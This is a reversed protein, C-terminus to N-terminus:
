SSTRSRIEISFIADPLSWPTIPSPPSLPKPPEADVTSVVASEINMYNKEVYNRKWPKLSMERWCGRIRASYQRSFELHVSLSLRVQWKGGGSHRVKFRKSSGAKVVEHIPVTSDPFSLASNGAVVPFPAVLYPGWTNDSSRVQITGIRAARKAPADFRFIVWHEGNTKLDGVAVVRALDNKPVERCLLIICTAVLSLIIFCALAIRRRMLRVNTLRLCCPV